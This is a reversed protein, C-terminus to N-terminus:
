WLLPQARCGVGERDFPADADALGSGDGVGEGVGDTPWIKIYKSGMM